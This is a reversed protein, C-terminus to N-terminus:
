VSRLLGGDIPITAGNIYAARDSALFAVLDGFESAEAVRGVPVRKALERYHGDVDGDKARRAIQASKVLGICITNVLIRDGAYENALSKTLNIGAARSVSTPLGQARPAKGGVTTVNIIRGGGRKKMHPIVLRSMRVAGMVKLEFDAQWTADDVKEFPAAASTGANNLLIDVGGLQAVTQAVVAECDAPRSIDATLGLVEGGTAKKIEDVARELVDKRRACAVVRAGSRALREVAARGLGESGGTVIAIKGKLGLELTDM